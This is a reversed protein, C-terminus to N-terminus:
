SIPVAEIKNLYDVMQYVNFGASPYIWAGETTVLMFVPGRDDAFDTTAIAAKVLRSNGAALYQVTRGAIVDAVEWQFKM